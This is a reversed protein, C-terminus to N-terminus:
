EHTPVIHTSLCLKTRDKLSNILNRNTFIPQSFLPHGPAILKELNGNHFHYVLSAFLFPVCRKFQAPFANYWPLINSWGFQNLSELTVLGFHPPLIDFQDADFKLQAVTRGVLSDGDQEAKMYCDQTRGVSQGARLCVMTKSPGDIKNVSTSEAFKRSSHTGIDGRKCGMDIHAPIDKLARIMHRYYRKNQDGGDFLHILGDSSRYKCWTYIALGLIVCIEPLFPNAYLRKKEGTSEGEIDAKTNGFMITMSDNEWDINRLLLDDINDSRGITNVSLKTFLQAFIGEMWPSTHGIPVMINFYKCLTIYGMLNFGEKGEKQSMIGARKKQGVDRKYSKIQATVERNVESPWTCGIKAKGEPDNHEHWWKLASKYNQYTQTTVTKLLRAPNHAQEPNVSQEEEDEDADLDEEPEQRSRVKPLTIDVSIAAFLRQATAVSIPLKLQLVGHAAGIHEKANGNEDLELAEERIQDEMEDLIKTMVRCKSIYIYNTAELVTRQQQGLIIADLAQSNPVQRERPMTLYVRIKFPKSIM